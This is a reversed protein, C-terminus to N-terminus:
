CICTRSAQCECVEIKKSSSYTERKVSGERVKSTEIRHLRRSMFVWSKKAVVDRRQRHHHIWFPSSIRYHFSLSYFWSFVGSLERCVIRAGSPWLFNYINKSIYWIFTIEQFTKASLPKSRLSVLGRVTVVSLRPVDTLKYDINLHLEGSSDKNFCVIFGFLNLLGRLLSCVKSLSVGDHIQNFEDSYKRSWVCTDTLNDDNAFNDKNAHWILMCAHRSSPYFFNFFNWKWLLISENTTHACSFLSVLVRGCRSNRTLKDNFGMLKM